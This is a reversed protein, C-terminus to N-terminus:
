IGHEVEEHVADIMHRRAQAADIKSLYTEGNVEEICSLLFQLDACPGDVKHYIKISERLENEGHYLDGHELHIFALKQLGFAIQKEDAHRSKLKDILMWAIRDGLGHLHRKFAEKALHCVMGESRMEGFVFRDIDMQVKISEFTRPSDDFSLQIMIGFLFYAAIPLPLILAITRILSCKSDARFGVWSMPSCSAHRFSIIAAIIYIIGLAVLIANFPSAVLFAFGGWWTSALLATFSLAAFTFYAANSRNHFKETTM